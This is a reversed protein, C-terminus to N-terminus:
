PQNKMFYKTAVAKGELLVQLFYAGSPITNIPLTFVVVPQSKITINEKVLKGEASFIRFQLKGTQPFSNVVTINEKAPNPSLSISAVEKKRDAILIRSYSQHGNKDYQHIRYYSVRTATSHTFHYEHGQAADGLSNVRGVRTFDVGNSSYEIDFHDNNFEQSSIWTIENGSATVQIGTYAFLLPLTAANSTITITDTSIAGLNDQATLTFQYVGTALNSIVPMISTPNSITTNTPGSLKNWVYSVVVGDPDYTNEGDLTVTPSLTTQDAGAIAVPPINSAPSNTVIINVTDKASAARDDAVTLEFSYTGASTLNNIVTLGNSSVPASINSSAPGTLQKWIYRVITGDADTSSIGSLNALATISSITLDNGARAIPLNNVPKSKNQALFWEYINPNQWNYVTDFARDWIAHGGDPYITMLPKVLPNCNLINSIGGTTCGVGVTGDNSAHFAWTPLLANAINCANVMSCTGCVPAIAALNKPNSANISAYQWVGGGGLSLGTVIIRNTDIRLNAKAYKVMEEAYFAPWDGYSSSLQPSLVLFTETKGNWTFRMPHGANIYKPIANTLVRPLETTGNGREGIGHMFIIVPYRTTTQVSYDTPKYEYFGIFTGNSATLSKAIQQASILFPALFLVISLITKMSCGENYPYYFATGSGM